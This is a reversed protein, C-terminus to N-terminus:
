NKTSFKSWCSRIENLINRVLSTGLHGLVVGLPFSRFKWPQKKKEALCAWSWQHSQLEETTPDSPAVLGLSFEKAAGSIVM